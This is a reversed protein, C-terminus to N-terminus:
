QAALKDLELAQTISEFKAIFEIQEQQTAFSYSVPLISNADYFIVDTTGSPRVRYVQELNLFDVGGVHQIKLWKM